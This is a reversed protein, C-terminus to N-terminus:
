LSPPPPFTTSYLPTIVTKVSQGWEMARSSPLAAAKASRRTLLLCRETLAPLPPLPLGIPGLPGFPWIPRSAAPGITGSASFIRESYFNSKKFKGLSQFNVCPSKPPVKVCPNKRFEELIRLSKLFICYAM